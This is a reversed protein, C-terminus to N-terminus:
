LLVARGMFAIAITMITSVIVGQGGVAGSSAARTSDGDNFEDSGTFGNSTVSIIPAQATTRLYSPSQSSASAVIPSTSPPIRTSTTSSVFPSSSTTPLYVTPASTRVIISSKDLYPLTLFLVKGTRQNNANLGQTAGVALLITSEDDKNSLLSIGLRGGGIREGQKKGEIEHVLKWDNGDFDFVQGLGRQGSYFFSTTAIRLGSTTISVAQGLRDLNNKGGIPSGILHWSGDLYNLVSVVGNLNGGGASGNPMGVVISQGDGSLMLSLGFQGKEVAPGLVDQGIKSWNKGELNDYVRVLGRRFTGEADYQPASIALRHGEDSFSMAYGFRARLQDGVLVAKEVWSFKVADFAFIFVRGTYQNFSQEAVALLTGDSSLSVENAEASIPLGVLSDSGDLQVDFVVVSDELCIAVRSGKAAIAACSRVEKGLETGTKSWVHTSTHTDFLHFAGSPEQAPAGVLLRQGSLQTFTGFESSEGDIRTTGFLTSVVNESSPTQNMSAPLNTMQITSDQESAGGKSTSSSGSGSGSGEFDFVAVKGSPLDNSNLAWSSGAALQTGDSSLVISHGLRERINTGHVEQSLDWNGDILDHIGVFGRAVNYAFSAVAIRDGHHSISIARGLRLPALGVIESGLQEWLSSGDNANNHRYVIASGAGGLRGPCGSIITNGDGSMDLTYGFQSNEAPGNLFQGIPSWNGSSSDRELVLIGGRKTGANPASVAVRTGDTSIATKWGFYSGAEFGILEFSPVWKGGEWDLIRIRGRNSDFREESVVLTKTSSLSVEQGNVSEIPLGVMTNLDMDYVEVFDKRRVAIWNDGLAFKEGVGEDPLGGFLSWRPLNMNSNTNYVFIAGGGNDGHQPAGIALDARNNWDIHWGFEVRDKSQPTPGYIEQVPTGTTFGTLHRGTTPVTSTATSAQCLSCSFLFLFSTSLPFSSTTISFM